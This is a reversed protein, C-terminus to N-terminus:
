RRYVAFCDPCRLGRGNRVARDLKFRPVTFTKGCSTCTTDPMGSPMRSTVRTTENPKVPVM